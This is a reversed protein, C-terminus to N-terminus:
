RVNTLGISICLVSPLFFYTSLIFIMHELTSLHTVHLGVSLHCTQVLRDFIHIIFPIFLCPPTLSILNCVGPSSGPREVPHTSHEVRSSQTSDITCRRFTPARCLSTLFCVLSLCIILVRTHAHCHLAHCPLMTPWASVCACSMSVSPFMCFFSLCHWPQVFIHNM